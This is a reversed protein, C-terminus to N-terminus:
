PLQPPPIEGDWINPSPATKPQKPPGSYGAEIMADFNSRKILVRRGVRVVPLLGDTLWNRVTQQSLKLVTAIEAVTM